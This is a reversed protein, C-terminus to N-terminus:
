WSGPCHGTGNPPAPGPCYLAKEPQQLLLSFPLNFNFYLYLMLGTAAHAFFLLLLKLVPRKRYPVHGPGLAAGAEEQVDVVDGVGDQVGRWCMAVLVLGLLMIGLEAIDRGAPSKAAM